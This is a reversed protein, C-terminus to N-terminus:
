VRMEQVNDSILPQESQVQEEQANQAAVGAMAQLQESLMANQQQLQQIIGMLTQGKSVYDIVKEKGEFEMMELMGLAMHANEPNFIGMNYLNAATENQSLISFPNKRQACIAIDFIPLRFLDSSVNQLTLSSNDFSVFQRKGDQGTIRFARRETYFQRILEIVIECVNRFANYTGNNIDRSVKNGAEQLAAIATGSTVGGTAGGANVDRNASTEKLEDIKLQKVSMVNGDFPQISIPRLREDSLDGEVEVLRKKLDLFDDPNIGCDKKTFWRPNSLQYTHRLINADLKDIYLQPDKTVAIVGFGYCTAAEPFLVDLVIPYKGHEYYGNEKYADDNESSYLISEGTFKCYHLITRTGVRKKYYWDIVTCKGSTDVTDDRIYEATIKADNSSIRSAQAPYAAKIDEADCLSIIFLNKSDQIDRIGPEFAINLLDIQSIRVDGFGNDFSNDWFVGYCSVGHKLKYWACDSYVQQFKSRELIVPVISSLVDASKEDSPERPLFVAQPFVDMLDAHKNMVANFTWASTPQPEPDNADNPRLAEWHRLRWWQEEQVIRNDLMAKGDRYKLLTSYAQAIDDKTIGQSNKKKQM